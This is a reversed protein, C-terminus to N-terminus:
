LDRNYFRVAEDDLCVATLSECCASGCCAIKYGGDMSLEWVNWKGGTEPDSIRARGDTFRVEFSDLPRSLGVGLAKLYSEKITWLRFFMDAANEGAGSIFAREGDTFRRMVKTYGATGVRQVDCGVEGDSLACVIKGDSHSLNFFLGAPTVLRPKGFGNYGLSIRGNFGSYALAVPLIIGAALCDNQKSRSPLSAVKQRRGPAVSQLCRAFLTDDDLIKGNIIFLKLVGKEEAATRRLEKAAVSNNEGTSNVFANTKRIITDFDLSELNDPFQIGPIEFLEQSKEKDIYM